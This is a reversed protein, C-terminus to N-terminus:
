KTGIRRLSDPQFDSWQGKEGFKWPQKIENDLLSL